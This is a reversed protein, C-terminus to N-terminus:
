KVTKTESEDNSKRKLEYKNHQLIDDYPLETIEWIDLNDKIWMIYNYIRKGFPTMKLKGNRKLMSVSIIKDSDAILRLIFNKLSRFYLRETVNSFQNDIEFKDTSIIFDNFIKAMESNIKKLKDDM